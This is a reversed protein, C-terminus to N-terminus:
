NAGKSTAAAIDNCANDPSAYEGDAKSADCERTSAGGESSADASRDSITHGKHHHTM